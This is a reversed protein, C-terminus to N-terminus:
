QVQPLSWRTKTQQIYFYGLQGLDESAESAQVYIHLYLPQAPDATFIAEMSEDDWAVDLFKSFDIEMSLVVPEVSGGAGVVKYVGRGNEIAQKYDSPASSLATVVMGVICTTQLGGTGGPGIHLQVKASRPHYKRYLVSYNDFGGPKNNKLANLAITQTAIVGGAAPDLTGRTAYRMDRTLVTPIPGRGQVGFSTNAGLQVTSAKASFKKIKKAAVKRDASSMPMSRKVMVVIEYIFFNIHRDGIRLFSVLLASM